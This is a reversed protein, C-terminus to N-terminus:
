PASVKIEGKNLADLAKDRPADLVVQGQDMVIIRDVLTLLSARHTILILTKDPLIEGLRNMFLRESGTDMGSTPEDMVVVPPDM